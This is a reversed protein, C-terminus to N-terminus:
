ACEYVSPLPLELIEEELEIKVSAEPPIITMEEGDVKRRKTLQTMGTDWNLNTQNELSDYDGEDAM